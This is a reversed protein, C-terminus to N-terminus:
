CNNGVAARLRYSGRLFRACMCVYICVRAVIITEDIGGSSWLSNRDRSNTSNENVWTLSSSNRLNERGERCSIGLLPRPIIKYMKLLISKSASQNISTEM